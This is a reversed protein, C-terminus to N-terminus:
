VTAEIEFGGTKTMQPNSKGIQYLFESGDTRSDYFDTMGNECYYLEFLADKNGITLVEENEEIFSDINYIISDVYEVLSQTDEGEYKPTCLKLNDVDLEQIESTSTMQYIEVKRIQVKM